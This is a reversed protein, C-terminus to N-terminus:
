SKMIKGQKLKQKVKMGWSYSAGMGRSFDWKLTGEKQLLDWIILNINVQQCM